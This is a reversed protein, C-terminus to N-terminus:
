IEGRRKLDKVVDEFAYDPERERVEFAEIDSADEALASRVADNVLESVSTETEAAKIRLARHLSPDFYVTARKQTTESM